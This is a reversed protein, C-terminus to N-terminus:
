GGSHWDREMRLFYPNLSQEEYDLHDRLHTALTSIAARATEASEPTEDLAAAATRVEAIMGDVQDHETKLRAVVPALEPFARQMTPFMRHDELTHHATLHNCYRECHVRLSWANRAINLSGILKQALAPDALVGLATELADIDARLGAHILRLEQVM